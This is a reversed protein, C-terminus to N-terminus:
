VIQKLSFLYGIDLEKKWIKDYNQNIPLLVEHQVIRNTM